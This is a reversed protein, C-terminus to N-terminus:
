IDEEAFIVNTEGDISYKIIKTYVWNMYEPVM